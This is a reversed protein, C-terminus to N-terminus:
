KRQPGSKLPIPKLKPYHRDKQTKLHNMENNAQTTIEAASDGTKVSSKIAVTKRDRNYFGKSLIFSGGEHKPNWSIVIIWEGDDFNRSAILIRIPEEDYVQRVHYGYKKMAASVYGLCIKAMSALAQDIDTRFNVEISYRTAATSLELLPILREKIDTDEKIDFLNNYERFNM